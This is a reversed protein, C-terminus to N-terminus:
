CSTYGKAFDEWAEVLKSASFGNVIILKAFKCREYELNRVEFLNRMFPLSYAYEPQVDLIKLCLGVYVDELHVMKVYRAAWTVRGALDWSFVYGAGSVYTPFGEEPYQAKTLQWKNNGNRKPKGDKIVSGTIFGRKPRFKLYDKLYFINVFIDADVKMAYRTNPCHADLWNMMMLTKITLNQYSDIFDIQIIDGHKQSEIEIMNQIEVRKVHDEPTGLFFLTLTDKGPAGWTKRVAERQAYQHPAVPVLFILLLNTRNYCFSPQNIVYAYSHPSILKYDEEPLLVPRKPLHKSVKFVYFSLLLIAFIAIIRVSRWLFGKKM